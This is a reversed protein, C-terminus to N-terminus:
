RSCKLADRVRVGARERLSFPVSRLKDVKSMERNMGTREVGRKQQEGRVLQARVVAPEGEKAFQMAANTGPPVHDDRLMQAVGSVKKPKTGTKKM